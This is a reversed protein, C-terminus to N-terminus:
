RPLGVRSRGSTGTAAPARRGAPAAHSRLGNGELAQGLAELWADSQAQGEYVLLLTAPVTTALVDNVGPFDDLLRDHVALWDTRVDLGPVTIMYLQPM